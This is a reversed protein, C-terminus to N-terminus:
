GIANILREIAQEKTLPKLNGTFSSVMVDSPKGINYSFGGDNSPRVYGRIKNNIKVLFRGNKESTTIMIKNKTTTMKYKKTYHQFNQKWM